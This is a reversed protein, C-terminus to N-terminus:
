VDDGDISHLGNVSRGSNIQDRYWDGTQRVTEWGTIEEPTLSRRTTRGDRCNAATGYLAVMRPHKTPDVTQDNIGDFSAGQKPDNMM